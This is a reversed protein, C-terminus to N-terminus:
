YSLQPGLGGLREIVSQGVPKDTWIEIAAGNGDSTVHYATVEADSNYQITDTIAQLTKGNRALAVSPILVEDRRSSHVILDYSLKQPKNQNAARQRPKRSQPKHAVVVRKKSAQSM